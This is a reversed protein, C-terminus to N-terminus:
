YCHLLNPKLIRGDREGMTLFWFLCCLCVTYAVTLLRIGWGLKWQNWDKEMCLAYVIGQISGMICMLATSSYPCPYRVMM